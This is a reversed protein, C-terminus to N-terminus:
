GGLTITIIGYLFNITWGLFMIKVPLKMEHGPVNTFTGFVVIVGALYGISGLIIHIMTGLDNINLIDVSGLIFDMTENLVLFINITMLVLTIAMFIGHVKSEKKRSVNIQFVITGVIMFLIAVGGLYYGFHDYFLEIPTRNDIVVGVTVKIDFEVLPTSGGALTAGRSLIRLTYIGPEPPMTIELEVRISDVTPDLDNISNDTINSSPLVIFKDNNMACPYVDIVVGPGTGTIELTYTSSAEAEIESINVSITYGGPHCGLSPESPFANSNFAVAVTTLVIISFVFLRIKTRNKCSM